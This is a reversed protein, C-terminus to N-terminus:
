GVSRVHRMGHAWRQATRGWGTRLRTLLVMGRSLGPFKLSERIFGRTSAFDCDIYWKLSVLNSRQELLKDMLFKRVVRGLVKPAM